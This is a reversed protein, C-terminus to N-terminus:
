GIWGTELLSEPTQEADVETPLVPEENVLNELELFTDAAKLGELFDTSARAERIAKIRQKALTVIGSRDSWSLDPSALIAGSFTVFASKVTEIDDADASTKLLDQWLPGYGLSQWDTRQSTVEISLVIYDHDTYIAGQRTFLEGGKVELAESEITEDPAAIMVLYGPALWVNEKLEKDLGLKLDLGDSSMSNEISTKITSAMSIATTLTANLTLQSIGEALSIFRKAWDDAPASYLGLMLELDGGRYLVPGLLTQDLTVIDDLRSENSDGALEPKAVFNVEVKGNMGAFRMLANVVPYKTQFLVRRHKLFMRALRLRIYVEETVLTAPEAQEAAFFYPRLLKREDKLAKKFMDGLDIPM